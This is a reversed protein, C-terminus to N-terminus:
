ALVVELRHGDLVTLGRADMALSGRPTHFDIVGAVTNCVSAGNPFIICATSLHGSTDVGTGISCLLSWALERVVWVALPTATSTDLWLVGEQLGLAVIDPATDQVFAGPHIGLAAHHSIPTVM